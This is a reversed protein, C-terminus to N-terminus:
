AERTPVVIYISKLTALESFSRDKFRPALKMQKLHQETERHVHGKGLLVQYGAREFVDIYDSHRLRNEGEMTLRNILTHQWDHWTLFNVKSLRKDRHELHDSHDVCHVMVGKRTLKSRLSRLLSVLHVEPIHELVTRSIVVDISADPLQDVDFPALYTLPFDGVASTEPLLAFESGEGRLFNITSAFTTDDMHPTLDTMIVRRAGRLCLVVPVTPFWGTGIELVSARDFSWDLHSLEQQMEALDRLTDRLNGANPQYGVLRRKARRLSQGFPLRGMMALRAVHLQWYM